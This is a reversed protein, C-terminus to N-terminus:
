ESGLLSVNPLEKSANNRSKNSTSLKMECLVFIFNCSIILFLSISSISFATKSNASDIYFLSNYLAILSTSFNFFHPLIQEETKMINRIMWTTSHLFYDFPKKPHPKSCAQILLMTTLFVFVLIACIM